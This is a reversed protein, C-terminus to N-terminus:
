LKESASLMSWAFSMTVTQKWCESVTFMLRLATFAAMFSHLPQEYASLDEMETVITSVM